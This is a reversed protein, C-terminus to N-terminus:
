LKSVSHNLSFKELYISSKSDQWYQVGLGKVLRYRTRLILFPHLLRVQFTVYSFFIQLTCHLAVYKVFIPGQSFIQEPNKQLGYYYCSGIQLVGNFVALMIWSAIESVFPGHAFFQCTLCFVNLTRLQKQLRNCNKASPPLLNAFFLNKCGGRLGLICLYGFKTWVFLLSKSSKHKLTVQGM